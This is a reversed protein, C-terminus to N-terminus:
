KYKQLLMLKVLELTKYNDYKEKINAIARSITATGQKTDEAIKIISDNKIYRILIDMENDTLLLEEIDECEIEYNRLMEILKNFDINIGKGNYYGSIREIEDTVFEFQKSSNIINELLDIRDNVSM